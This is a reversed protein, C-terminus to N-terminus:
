IQGLDFCKLVVYKERSRVNIHRFRHLVFESDGRIVHTQIRRLIIVDCKYM